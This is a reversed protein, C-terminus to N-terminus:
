RLALCFSLRGAAVSLVANQATYASMPLGHLVALRAYETWSIGIFVGTQGALKADRWGAQATAQM